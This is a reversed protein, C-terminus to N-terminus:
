ARRKRLIVLVVGIALLLLGLSGGGIALVIGGLGAFIGGISVPPGVMVATDGCQIDYDGAEEATFSDFSAWQREGDAFESTQSTGPGVSPGDVTCQPAPTGEEAYLQLSDGAEATITGSGSEFVEVKSATSALGGFGIVALVVGVILSLVLIAAGVIILIKPAKSPKKAPASHGGQPAPSYMGGPAPHGPQPSLPGSSPQQDPSPQPPPPQTM